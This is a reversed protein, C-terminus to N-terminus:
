RKNKRDRTIGTEQERQTKKQRDRTRKDRTSETKNKRDRENDKYRMEKYRERVKISRDIFIKFGFFTKLM